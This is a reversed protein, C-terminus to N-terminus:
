PQKMTLGGMIVFASGSNVKACSLEGMSQQIAMWWGSLEKKM